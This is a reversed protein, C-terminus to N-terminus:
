GSAANLAALQLERIRDTAARAAETMRNLDDQSFPQKEATGQVEVFLGQGTVVFNMDVDCGFDENYDLDVLVEGGRLGVSIASVTDVMARGPLKGARELKRLALAVAVCAGTISATRTGGDAQLVDCDVLITREGLGKLDVMSRLARGILRQIEQTRGSLKERDRKTRTHTSRPLMSYEATIWGKGKGVLWGPVTEEVSVTCLVQTHGARILVSSRF